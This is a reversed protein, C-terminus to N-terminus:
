ELNLNNTKNVKLWDLWEKESLRFFKRDGLPLSVYNYIKKVYRPGEKRGRPYVYKIPTWKLPQFTRSRRVTQTSYFLNTNEDYYLGVFPRLFIKEVPKLNDPVKLETDDQKVLEDDIVHDGDDYNLDELETCSIYIVPENTVPDNPPFDGNDTVHDDHDDDYNLGVLETNLENKILENQNIPESM